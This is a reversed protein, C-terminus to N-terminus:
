FSANVGSITILYLYERSIALISHVINIENKLYTALRSLGDTLGVEAKTRNGQDISTRELHVRRRLGFM